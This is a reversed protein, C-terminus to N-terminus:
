GYLKKRLWVRDAQCDPCNGSCNLTVNAPLPLVWGHGQAARARIEDLPDDFRIIAKKSTVVNGQIDLRWFDDSEEGDGDFNGNVQYGLQDLEDVLTQVQSDFDYAKISEDFGVKIHTYGPIKHGPIVTVVGNVLGLTDGGQTARSEGIVFYEEQFCELAQIQALHSPDIEPTVDVSGTIYTYYGM